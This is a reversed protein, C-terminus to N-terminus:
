PASSSTQSLLGVLRQCEKDFDLISDYRMQTIPLNQRIVRVGHNWHNPEVLAILDQILIRFNFYANYQMKEKLFSYDLSEGHFRFRKIPPNTFVDVLYHMEAHVTKEQVNKEKKRFNPIPIGTALLVGAKLIKGAIESNDQTKTQMKHESTHHVCVAVFLINNKLLEEEVGGMPKIVIKDATIKISRMDQAAIPNIKSQRVIKNPHQRVMFLESLKEAEPLSLNEGLIGWSSRLHHAADPEPLKFISTYSKIMLDLLNPDFDNLLVAYLTEDM